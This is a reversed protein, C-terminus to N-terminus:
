RIVFCLNMRLVLLTPFRMYDIVSFFIAIFGYVRYGAM